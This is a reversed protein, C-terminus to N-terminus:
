LRSWLVPAAASTGANEDLMYALIRQLKETFLLDQAGECELTQEGLLPHSAHIRSETVDVHQPAGENSQQPECWATIAVNCRARTTPSPLGIWGYSRPRM